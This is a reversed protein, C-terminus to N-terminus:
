RALKVKLKETESNGLRGTLKVILSAGAKECRRLAKAIRLEEKRRKPRLTLEKAQGADLRCEFVSGAEDATFSASISTTTTSGQAPSAITM